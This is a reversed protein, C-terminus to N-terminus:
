QLQVMKRRIVRMGASICQTAWLQKFGLWICHIVGMAQYVIVQLKRMHLILFFTCVDRNKFSMKEKMRKPGLPRKYYSLKTQKSMDTISILSDFSKLDTGDSISFIHLQTESQLSLFGMYSIVYFFIYPAIISLGKFQLQANFGSWYGRVNATM